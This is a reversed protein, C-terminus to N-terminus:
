ETVVSVQHKEAKDGHYLTVEYSEGPVAFVQFRTTTTQVKSMKMVNPTVMTEGDYVPGAVAGYGGPVATAEAYDAVGSVAVLKGLPKANLRITWGTNIKEFNTPASPEIALPNGPRAARLPQYKTPFIAQQTLTIDGEPKAASLEVEGLGSVEIRCNQGMPATAPAVLQLAHQLSLRGSPRSTAAVGIAAVCVSALSTRLITNM